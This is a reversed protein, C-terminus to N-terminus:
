QKEELMIETPFPEGKNHPFYSEYGNAKIDLWLGTTVTDHLSLIKSLTLYARAINPTSVRREPLKVVGQEDAIVRDEHWDMQMGTHIWNQTVIAQAAPTRNPYLVKFTWEPAVTETSPYLALVFLFIIAFM